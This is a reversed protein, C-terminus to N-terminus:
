AKARGKVFNLVIRYFHTLTFIMQFFGRGKVIGIRIGRATRALVPVKDKAEMPAVVQVPVLCTFIFHFKDGWIVILSLWYSM